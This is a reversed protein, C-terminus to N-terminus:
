LRCYLCNLARENYYVHRNNAQNVNIVKRLWHLKLWNIKVMITENIQKVLSDNWKQKWLSFFWKM